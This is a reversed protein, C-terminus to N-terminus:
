FGISKRSYSGDKTITPYMIPAGWSIGYPNKLWGGGKRWRVKWFDGSEKYAIYPWNKHTYYIYRLIKSKTPPQPPCPIVGAVCAHMLFVRRSSAKRRTAFSNGLFGREKWCNKLFQTHIQPQHCPEICPYLIHWEKKYESGGGGRSKQTPSPHRRGLCGQTM